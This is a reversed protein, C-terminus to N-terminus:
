RLPTQQSVKNRRARCCNGRSMGFTPPICGLGGHRGVSGEERFDRQELEKVEVLSNRERRMQFHDLKGDAM